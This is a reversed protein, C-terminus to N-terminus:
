EGLFLKVRKAADDVSGTKKARNRLDAVAKNPNPVVKGGPKLLKPVKKVKQKAIDTNALNQKYLMAMRIVKMHRADYTEAREQQSYGLDAMFTDMATLEKEAQKLDKWEPIVELYKSREVQKAQEIKQTQEAQQEDAIRQAEQAIQHRTQLIEQERNKFEAQKASWEAPDSVRLANWDISNYEEILKNEIQQQFVSAQTVRAEQQLHFNQREEVFAKREDALKMKGQTYDTERQYGRIAEDLPIESIVGNVKTTVKVTQLFDELDM